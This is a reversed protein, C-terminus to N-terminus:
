LRAGLVAPSNGFGHLSFPTVQAKVTEVFQRQAETFPWVGAKRMVQDRGMWALVPALFNLEILPRGIINEPEALWFIAVPGVALEIELEHYLELDSALGLCVKRAVRRGPPDELPEMATSQFVAATEPFVEGGMAVAVSEGDSEYGLCNGCSRFIEIVPM